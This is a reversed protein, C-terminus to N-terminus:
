FGRVCSERATLYWRHSEEYRAPCLRAMQATLCPLLHDHESRHCHDQCSQQHRNQSTRHDTRLALSASFIPPAPRTVLAAPRGRRARAQWSGCHRRSATRRSRRIILTRAPSRSVSAAARCSYGVRRCSRSRCRWASNSQKMGAQSHAFSIGGLSTSRRQGDDFLRRRQRGRRASAPGHAAEPRRRRWPRACGPWHGPGM